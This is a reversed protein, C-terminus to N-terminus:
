WVDRSLCAIALKLTEGMPKAAGFMEGSHVIITDGELTGFGTKGHHEFRIWKAM